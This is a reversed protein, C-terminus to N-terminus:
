DKSIKKKKLSKTQGCSAHQRKGPHCCGEEYGLEKASTIIKTLLSTLQSREEESLTAFFDERAAHRKEEEEAFPNLCGKKVSIEFSRKDQENRKREILGRQELKTLLESLSSSRIDLLHMLERQTISGRDRIISFIHAQAHHAHSHKHYARAMMRSARHFLMGLGSKGAKDDSPVQKRSPTM